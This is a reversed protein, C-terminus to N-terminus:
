RQLNPTYGDWTKSWGDKDKGPMVPQRSSKKTSMVKTM